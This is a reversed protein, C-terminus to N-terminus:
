KSSIVGEQNVINVEMGDKLYAAGETIVIYNDKLANPSVTFFDAGIYIPQISIKHAKNNKLLYINAKDKYGEVLANIPIKLYPAQNSPFLKVKGIFGNKLIKKNNSNITLEVPFVGTRPDAEEAIETVYAPFIENPYADFLVKAEDGLRIKIVDKDAVGINMAFGKENITAIRFIPSGPSTLENNEAFRKLIKGDVPATIKSYNQNFQAVALDSKAVELVTTLDEVNELTAVTDAYMKKIRILDREAKKVAQRAKGVQADIETTRLTALIQGKRVAQTEKVLINQIVGGIKFGLNIEAKPAITGSAQIPIPEVTKVINAVGVTPINIKETVAIEAKSVYTEKCGVIFIFIFSILTLYKMYTLKHTIITM